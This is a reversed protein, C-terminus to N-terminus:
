KNALGVDGWEMKWNYGQSAVAFSELKCIYINNEM